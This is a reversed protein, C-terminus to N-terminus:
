KDQQKEVSTCRLAKRGDTSGLVGRFLVVGSDGRVSVISDTIAATKIIEGPRLTAASDIGAQGLEITAHLRVVSAMLAQRRDCLGSPLIRATPALADCLVADLYVDVIVEGISLALALVGHRPHLSRTDVRAVATLEVSPLSGWAAILDALARRGIAEALRDGGGASALTGGLMALGSDDLRVTIGARESRLWCGDATPELCVPDTTELDCAPAAASWDRLWAASRDRLVSSIRSIRTRGHWRLPLVSM